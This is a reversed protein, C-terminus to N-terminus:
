LEAQELSRIILSNVTEAAYMARLYIWARDGKRTPLPLHKRRTRASQLSCHLIEKLLIYTQHEIPDKPPKERAVASAIREMSERSFDEKWNELKPPEGNVLKGPSVKLANALSRITSLTVDRKGKEIDSLNPRPIGSLDALQEQSLSRHIRWLLINDGFTVM